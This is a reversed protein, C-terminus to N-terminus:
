ISTLRNRNSHVNSSKDMTKMNDEGIGDSVGEPLRIPDDDVDTYSTGSYKMAAIKVEKTDIKDLEMDKIRDKVEVLNKKLYFGIKDLFPSGLIFEDMSQDVVFFEVVCIRLTINSGPLAIVFDFKELKSISFKTEAWSERSLPICM